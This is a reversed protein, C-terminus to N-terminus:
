GQNLESRIKEYTFLTDPGLPMQGTEVFGAMRIVEDIPGGEFAPVGDSGIKNPSRFLAIEDVLDADMMSVAVQAGGEVMVSNIGRSSIERLVDGPAIRDDSDIASEITTVDADRLEALRDSRASPGHCVWLPIDKASQVLRSMQSIAAGTDLVIRVPSSEELGAIRCDLQPDDAAFPEVGLWFRTPM